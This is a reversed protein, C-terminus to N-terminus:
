PYGLVIAGECKKLLTIVEDMPANTPYDTTGLTRPSIEKGQLFRIFGDLGPKYKEDISTPRSLFINKM